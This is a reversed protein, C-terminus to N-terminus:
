YIFKISNKCIATLYPTIKGTPHQFSNGDTFIITDNLQYSSLLSYNNTSHFSIATSHNFIILQFFSSSYFFGGGSLWFPLGQTGYYKILEPKESYPIITYNSFTPDYKRVTQDAM